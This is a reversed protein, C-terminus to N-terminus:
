GKMIMQKLVTTENKRSWNQLVMFYGRHHGTLPQEGARTRIVRLETQTKQAEHLLVGKIKSFIKNCISLMKM